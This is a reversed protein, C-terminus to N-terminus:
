ALLDLLNEEARSLGKLSSGDGLRWKVWGHLADLLESLSLSVNPEIDELEIDGEELQAYDDRDIRYLKVNELPAWTNEEENVAIAEEGPVGKSSMGGGEKEQHQMCNSTERVNKSKRRKCM